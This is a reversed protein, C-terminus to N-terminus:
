GAERLRTKGKAHFPPTLCFTRQMELIRVQGGDGGQGIISGGLGRGDTVGPRGETGPGSFRPRAYFPPGEVLHTHCSSLM